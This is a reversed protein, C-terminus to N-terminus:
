WLTTSTIGAPPHSKDIEWVFQPRVVAPCSLCGTAAPAIFWSAYLQAVCRAVPSGSQCSHGLPMGASAPVLVWLCQQRVMCPVQPHHLMCGSAAGM